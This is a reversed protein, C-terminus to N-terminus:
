APLLIVKVTPANKVAVNVVRKDFTLFEAAGSKALEETLAIYFSDASHLCSYGKSIEEARLIFPIDGHPSPRIMQMYDNFAEIAEQYKVATLLGGEFKKCLVFPVETLIAGPAYFVWGQNAYNALANEAIQHSPEKACISILVNADIVVAGPSSLTPQSM